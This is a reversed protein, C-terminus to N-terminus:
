SLVVASYYKKNKLTTVVVLDQTVFYELIESIKEPSFDTEKVLDDVLVGTLKKEDIQVKLIAIAVQRQEDSLTSRFDWDALSDMDEKIKNVYHIIARNIFDEKDRFSHKIKISRNNILREIEQRLDANLELRVSKFSQNVIYRLTEAYTIFNNEKQITEFQKASDGDLKTRIYVENENKSDQTSIRKSSGTTRPM